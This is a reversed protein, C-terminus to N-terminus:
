DINNQLNKYTKMKEQAENIRGLGSLAMSWNYWTNKHEPSYKVVVKFKEISAEYDGLKLLASGWNAWANVHDNKIKLVIKFQEIAEKPKELALLAVGWNTRAEVDQPNCRIAEKYKLIAEEYKKSVSLIRGWNYWFDRHDPNLKALKEYCEIAEEFRELVQYCLGLNAWAADLDSRARISKKIIKIAEDYRDLGMLASAWNNLSIPDDPKYSLAIKFKEIASDYNKLKTLAVGWNDWVWYPEPIKNTLDQYIECAREYEGKYYLTNALYFRSQLTEIEKSNAHDKFLQEAKDYKKEFIAKMGQEFKSGAELDSLIDEIPVGMKESIKKLREMEPPPQISSLEEKISQRVLDIQNSSSEKIKKILKDTSKKQTSINDLSRYFNSFANPIKGSEPFIEEFFNNLTLAFHKLQEIILGESLNLDNKKSIELGLEVMGKADASQGKALDFLKETFTNDQCLPLFNNAYGTFAEHVVKEIKIRVKRNNIKKSAFKSATSILIKLFAKEPM